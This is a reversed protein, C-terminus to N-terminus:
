NHVSDAKLVATANCCMDYLTDKIVMFIWGTINKGHIWSVM